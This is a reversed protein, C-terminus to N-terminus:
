RAADKAAVAAAALLRECAQPWDAQLSRFPSAAMRVLAAANWWAIERASPMAGTKAYAEVFADSFAAGGRPDEAVAHSHFSALDMGIPGACARDFDCLGADNGLLVQGCHFDGHLLRAPSAAPICSTLTRAIEAAAAGHAPTLLGMDEGARLVLELEGSADRLPADAPLKAGHLRHLTAAVADLRSRDGLEFPSGDLHGELLLREHPSALLEPVRIGADRAAAALPARFPLPEALLRFWITQVCDAVQADESKFGLDWRLVARREPKYRVIRRRSKSKSIRLSDPVLDPRVGQVLTRVKSARVLRRLDPMQRDLPFGILLLGHEESLALSRQWEDTEEDARHRLKNAEDALRLPPATRVTVYSPAQEDGVLAHWGVICGDKGKWRVYDPALSVNRSGDGLLERALQQVLERDIARAFSPETAAVPLPCVITM